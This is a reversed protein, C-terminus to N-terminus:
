NPMPVGFPSALPDLQRALLFLGVTAAWLVLLLVTLKLADAWAASRRGGGAQGRAARLLYWGMITFWALLPLLLLAAAQLSQITDM